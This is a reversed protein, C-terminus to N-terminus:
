PASPGIRVRVVWLIWLVLKVVALATRIWGYRDRRERGDDDMLVGQEALGDPPCVRVTV